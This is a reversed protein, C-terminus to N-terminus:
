SDAKSLFPLFPEPDSKWGLRRLCKRVTKESLGLRGAIWRNSMGKAKLLLITQNREHNKKGRSPSGAPRGEPRALTSLGGAKHREQYRRLTRASYGFCRAIDNQDAYGAEFLTVMAYAEATRDEIPYHSLTNGHVFVVRQEEETQVCVRDNVFVTGPTPTPRAFFETQRPAPSM